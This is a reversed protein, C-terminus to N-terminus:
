KFFSIFITQSIFEGRAFQTAGWIVFLRFSFASKQTMEVELKLQKLLRLAQEQLEIWKDLCYIRCVKQRFSIQVFEKGNRSQKRSNVIESKLTTRGPRLNAFLFINLLKWFKGSVKTHSKRVRNRHHRHHFLPFNNFCFSQLFMM